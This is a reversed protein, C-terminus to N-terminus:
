NSYNAVVRSVLGSAAIEMYEGVRVGKQNKYYLVVSNVGSMIEQLEFHLEPFAKLGITFYNRLDDKGVVRGDPRNLRQAAIPSTLEVDDTYHALIRELDHANWSEIWDKAFAEIQPKTLM